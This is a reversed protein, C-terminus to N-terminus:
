RALKAILGALLAAQAPMRDTVVYEDAAHAGGGVAGLGDLVPVGLAACLNADSAGGTAVESLDFGLSQAVDHAIHFLAAIGPTRDMPPRGFEGRVDIELAARAAGLQM